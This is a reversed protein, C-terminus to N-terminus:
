YRDLGSLEVRRNEQRGAESDGPAVPRTAGYGAAELRDAPVGRRILYSRVARARRLSLVASNKEARDAHGEVRIMSGADIMPAIRDLVSRSGRTFRTSNELFRVHQAAEVTVTRPRADAAPRAIDPQPTPPRATDPQAVDPPGLDPLLDRGEPPAPSSRQGSHSCSGAALLAVVLLSRPM